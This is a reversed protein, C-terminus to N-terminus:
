ALKIRKKLIREGKLNTDNKIMEWAHNISNAEITGIHEIDSGPEAEIVYEYTLM